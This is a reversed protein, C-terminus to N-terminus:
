RDRLRILADIVAEPRTYAVLQGTDALCTLTARNAIKGHFARVSDISVVPDLEGHLLEIAHDSGTICDSWDRVVHYSDIEFARHGQAITFHYGSVIIDSVEPEATARLDHPSNQYLSQMFQREGANDLQNIGARIVFPLVRPTYRATLAVIRQRVSMSAFQASSTLPVAGAVSLVGRVGAGLHRAATHAYLAGAMHGTLIPKSVGMFDILCKIDNSLRLPATAVPGSEDPSATGFSRRVPCILHFGNSKLLNRLDRTM